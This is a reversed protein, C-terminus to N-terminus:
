AVGGADREAQKAAEKLTEVEATISENLKERLAVREKLTLTLAGKTISEANRPTKTQKVKEMYKNKIVIGVIKVPNSAEWTLDELKM